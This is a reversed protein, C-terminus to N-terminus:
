SWACPHRTWSGSWGRGSKPTRHTWCVCSRASARRRRIVPIDLRARLDRCLSLGDEGPLMIDLIVLDVRTRQLQDRMARGDPVASARYGHKQLYDCLLTRIEPDDDVVLIHDTEDTSM